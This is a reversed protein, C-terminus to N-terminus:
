FEAGCCSCHTASSGPWISSGCRVCQVKPNIRKSTTVGDGIAERVMWLLREENQRELQIVYARPALISKDHSVDFRMANCVLFDIRSKVEIMEEGIRFPRMEVSHKFPLGPNM